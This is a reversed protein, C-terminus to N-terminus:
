RSLCVVIVQILVSSNLTDVCDIDVYRSYRSPIIGLISLINKSSMRCAQLFKITRNAASQLHCVYRHCLFPPRPSTERPSKSPDFIGRSGDVRKKRRLGGARHKNKIKRCIFRRTPCTIRERHIVSRTTYACSASPHSNMALHLVCSCNGWVLSGTALIIIVHYNFVGHILFFKFILLLFIWYYLFVYTLVNYSYFNWYRVILLFIFLIIIWYGQLM